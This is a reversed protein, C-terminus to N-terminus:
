SVQKIPPIFIPKLLVIREAQLPRSHSQEMQTKEDVSDAPCLCICALCAAKVQLLETPAPRKSIGYNDTWKENLGNIRWCSVIRGTLNHWINCYCVLLFRRAM